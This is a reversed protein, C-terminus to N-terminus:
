YDMRKGNGNYESMAETAKGELLLTVAAAIDNFRAEVAKKEESTFRSLVWDALDYEPRPRDGVGIKVRPFEEGIFTIISKLGNHGGASGEMRIRLSGPPLSIDDFLVLVRQAPVKYFETAKLLSQGSLNMFTQPKILLLSQGDVRGSGTLADYKSRKVEIGWKQALHDLAAFGVNHRTNEYKKGPNGLGAIIWGVPAQNKKFLM